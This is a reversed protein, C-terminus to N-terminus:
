RRPCLFSLAAASYRSLVTKLARGLSDARAIGPTPLQIHQESTHLHELMCLM